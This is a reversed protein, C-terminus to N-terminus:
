VHEVVSAKLGMIIRNVGLAQELLNVREVLLIQLLLQGKHEQRKGVIKLGDHSVLMLADAKKFAVLFVFGRKSLVFDLM